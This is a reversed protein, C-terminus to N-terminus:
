RDGGSVVIDTVDRVRDEWAMDPGVVKATGREAIDLLVGPTVEQSALTLEGDDRVGSGIVELSDFSGVGADALVTLLSPGTETKGLAVVSTQEFSELADLDYAALVEDGRRVVVRYHTGQASVWWQIGWALAIAAALAAAVLAFRRQQPDLQM